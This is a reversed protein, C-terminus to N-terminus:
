GGVGNRDCARGLCFRCADICSSKGVAHRDFLAVVRGNEDFSGDLFDVLREEDRHRENVEYERNLFLADCDHTVMLDLLTEPVDQFRDTERILLPIRLKHLDRRLGNLTRLIFEVKVPAWDHERWQEECIIFVGIVGRSSQAAASHLATQDSIRLDSRVWMLTRM